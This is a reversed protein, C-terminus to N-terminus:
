LSKRDSTSKEHLLFSVFNITYCNFPCGFGVLGIKEGETVPFTRFKKAKVIFLSLFHDFPIIVRKFGFCLNLFFFFFKSVKLCLHWFFNTALNYIM